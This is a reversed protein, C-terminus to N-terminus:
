RSTSPTRRRSFGCAWTGRPASVRSRAATCRQGGARSARGPMRTCGEGFDSSRAARSRASSTTVASGPRSFTSVDTSTIPRHACVAMTSTTAPTMQGPDSSRHIGVADPSRPLFPSAPHRIGSATRQRRASTPTASSSQDDGDQPAPHPPPPHSGATRRLETGRPGAPRRTRRLGADSARSRHRIYRSSPTVDAPRHTARAVRGRRM